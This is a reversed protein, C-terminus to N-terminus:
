ESDCHNESTRSSNMIIVVCNTPMLQLLHYNHAKSLSYHVEGICFGGFWNLRIPTEHLKEVDQQLLFIRWPNSVLISLRSPRISHFFIFTTVYNRLAIPYIQITRPSRHSLLRPIKNAVKPDAHFKKNKNKLLNKTRNM